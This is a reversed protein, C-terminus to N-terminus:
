IHLLMLLAAAIAINKMFQTMEGMKQMPDDLTWFNHVM